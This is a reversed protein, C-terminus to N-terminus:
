CWPGSRFRAQGNSGLAGVHRRIADVVAAVGATSWHGDRRHRYAPVSLGSSWPVGAEHWAELLEIFAAHEEGADIDVADLLLRLRARVGPGLAPPPPTPRVQAM